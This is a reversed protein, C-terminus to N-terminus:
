RITFGSRREDSQLRWRRCGCCAPVSLTARHSQFSLDLRRRRRLPTPQSSSTCLTHTRPLTRNERSFRRIPHFESSTNTREFHGHRQEASGRPAGTIRHATGGGTSSSSGNGILPRLQPATLSHQGRPSTLRFLFLLSSSWWNVTIQSSSEDCVAM